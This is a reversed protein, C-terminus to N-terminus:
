TELFGYYKESLRHLIIKIKHRTMPITLLGAFVFLLGPLTLAADLLIFPSFSIRNNTITVLNPLQSLNIGILLTLPTVVPAGAILLIGGAKQSKLSLLSASLGILSGILVLVGYYIQIANWDCSCGVPNSVLVATSYFLGLSVGFLGLTVTGKRKLFEPWRQFIKTM